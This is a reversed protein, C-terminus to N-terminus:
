ISLRGGAWGCYARAQNWDVNVVPHDAKQRNDYDDRSQPSTCKGAEVCKRYRANTVEYKDIYFAELYVRHQPHEDGDGEGERSGMLFEVAPVPVREAGDRGQIQEPSTTAPAPAKEAPAQASGQPSTGSPSKGIPSAVSPLLMVLAFVVAVRARINRPRTPIPVATAVEVRRSALPDKILDEKKFARLGENLSAVANGQMSGSTDLLLVCLCRPEPNEAFEVAEERRPTDAM